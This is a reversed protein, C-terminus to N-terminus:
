STLLYHEKVVHESNKQLSQFITKMDIGRSRWYLFYLVYLGCTQANQDQLRNPLYSDVMDLDYHKPSRGLSDYLESNKDVFILLWHEGPVGHSNVVYAGPQLQGHPLEERAFVGWTVAHMESDRHIRRELEAKDM